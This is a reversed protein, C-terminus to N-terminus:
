AFGDNHAVSLSCMCIDCQGPSWVLATLMSKVAMGNKCGHKLIATSM